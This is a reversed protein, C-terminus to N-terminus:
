LIKKMKGGGQIKLSFTANLGSGKLDGTPKGLGKWVTGNVHTITWTAQVPSEAMAVAKELDLRVNSDWAVVMEASWRKRTMKDIMEGSGDVGDEGDDSRLGGTDLTSDENAKPYLSGTGLTPHSYTAQQIDGGVAGM